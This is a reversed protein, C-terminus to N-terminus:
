HVFYIISHRIGSILPLNSHLLHHSDFAVVQGPQLPVHVHFQPFYLDGGQFNGLPILCCLCNSVDLSDWHYNSYAGYHETLDQWFLESRHKENNIIYYYYTNVANTTHLLINTDDINELHILTQNNQNVICRPNVLCHASKLYTFSELRISRYKGQALDIMDFLKIHLGNDIKFSGGELLINWKM